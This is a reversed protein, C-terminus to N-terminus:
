IHYDIDFDRHCAINKNNEIHYQNQYKEYRKSLPLTASGSRIFKRFLELPLAPTRKWDLFKYHLNQVKIFPKILRKGFFNCYLKGFILPPPDLATQFKKSFEDSKTTHGTGLFLKLFLCKMVKNLISSWIHKHKAIIM